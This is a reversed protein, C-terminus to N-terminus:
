VHHSEFSLVQGASWRCRWMGSSGASFTFNGDVAWATGDYDNSVVYPRTDPLRADATDRCATSAAQKDGGGGASVSPSTPVATPTATGSGGTTASTFRISSITGGTSLPAAVCVLSGTADPISFTVTNTYTGSSGIQVDTVKFNYSGDAPLGTAKLFSQRCAWGVREAPETSSPNDAVTLDPTWGNKGTPDTPDDPSPTPTPTVYVTAPPTPAPAATATPASPAVAKPAPRLMITAFIAVLLVAVAVIAAPLVWPKRPKKGAPPPADTSPQTLPPPAGWPSQATSM